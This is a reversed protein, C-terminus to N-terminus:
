CICNKSYSLVQKIISLWVQDPLVDSIVSNETSTKNGAFHSTGPWKQKEYDKGNFPIPNLLFFLTLKKLTNQYGEKM